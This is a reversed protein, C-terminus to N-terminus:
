FFDLFSGEFFAGALGLFSSGGKLDPLHFWFTGSTKFFDWVKSLAEVSIESSHQEIQVLLSTILLIIM